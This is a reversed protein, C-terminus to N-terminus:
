RRRPLAPSGIIFADAEIELLMEPLILRSVEVMATVLDSNGFNATPVGSTRGIKLSTSWM